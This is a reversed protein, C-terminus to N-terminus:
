LRNPEGTGPAKGHNDTHLLPVGPLARVQSRRTRLAASQETQAVPTPSPVPPLRVRAARRALGAPQGCCSGPTRRQTRVPLTSSGRSQEWVPRLRAQRGTGLVDALQRSHPPWPDFRPRRPKLGASPGHEAVAGHLPWPPVRVADGLNCGPLHAARRGPWPSEPLPIRVRSM